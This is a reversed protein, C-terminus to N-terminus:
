GSAITIATAACGVVRAGRRRYGNCALRCRKCSPGSLYRRVLHFLNDQLQGHTPARARVWRRKDRRQRAALARRPQKTASAAAEQSLCAQRSSSGCAKCSSVRVDCRAPATEGADAPSYAVPAPPSSPISRLLLKRLNLWTKMSKGPGMIEGRVRIFTRASIERRSWMKGAGNDRGAGATTAAETRRRAHM